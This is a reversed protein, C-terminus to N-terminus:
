EGEYIPDPTSGSTEYYLFPGSGSDEVFIEDPLTGDSVYYLFLGDGSEHVYIDGPITGSTEPFPLPFFNGFWREPFYVRGFYRRPFM